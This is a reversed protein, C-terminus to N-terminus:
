PVDMPTLDDGLTVGGNDKRPIQLSAMDPLGPSLSRGTGVEFPSCELVELVDREILQAPGSAPDIGCLGVLGREQLPNSDLQLARKFAGTIPDQRRPHLQFARGWQM